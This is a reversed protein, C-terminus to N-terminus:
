WQIHIWKGSETCRVKKFHRCAFLTENGFRSPSLLKKLTDMKTISVFHKSGNAKSHIDGSYGRVLILIHCYIRWPIFMVVPNVLGTTKSKSLKSKISKGIEQLYSDILPGALELKNGVVEELQGDMKSTGYNPKRRANRVRCIWQREVSFKMAVNSANWFGEGRETQGAPARLDLIESINSCSQGSESQEQAAM